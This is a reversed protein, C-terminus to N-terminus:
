KAGEAVKDETSHGTLKLFVDDLTPRHVSYNTLKIKAKDLTTLLNTLGKIGDEVEFSLKFEEANKSSIQKGFVDVAKEYAEKSAMELDLRDAGMQAKLEDATGEAIVVGHDIVAIKDALRDAEELYQTTLLLTTGEKVLDEIIGWMTIRSHPDLGTTPEDLFLIPPSIILSAALDLRRRMGGSYTKVPREAADVLEFRAILEKARNKADNKSLHYLQGIMELNAMGTLKDDVAAYQGTLGIISRVADTDKVVDLGNVTATGSDAQLLTALIRVTTTKGAGNPGLIAMVTGKPVQLSVGKLVENDGYSKRLNDAVIAMGETM